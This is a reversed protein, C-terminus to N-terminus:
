NVYNNMQNMKKRRELTFIKKQKRKEIIEDRRGYFVDDPTVNGLSEHYRNKNYHNIFDGINRKLEDVRDYENVFVSMKLDKKCENKEGEKKYCWM